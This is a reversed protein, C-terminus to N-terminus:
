GENRWVFRRLRVTGDFSATVMGGLSCAVGHLTSRERVHSLCSIVNSHGTTHESQLKGSSIDWEKVKGDIGATLVSRENLDLGRCLLVPGSYEMGKQKERHYMQAIPARLTQTLYHQRGSSASVKEGIQGSLKRFDWTAVSGDGGASVMLHGTPSEIFLDSVPSRHFQLVFLPSSGARADWLAISRDSSASVFTSRGWYRCKTIWGNQGLMTQFCKGGSSALDWLKLSRDAGGSLLRDGHWATEICLIKGGHSALVDQPELGTIKKRNPSSSPIDRSAFIIRSSTGRTSGAGVSNRGNGASTRLSWLKILGDKGGSVISDPRYIHSPVDLCTVGGRHGGLAKGRLIDAPKKGGLIDDNPEFSASDLNGDDPKSRALHVALIDQTDWVRLDGNTTGAIIRCGSTKQLLREGDSMSSWDVGSDCYDDQFHVGNLAALCSVAGVGSYGDDFGGAPVVHKGGWNLLMGKVKSIKSHPTGFTDATENVYKSTHAVFISGDLAGTAFISNGFSVLKTVPAKRRGDESKVTKNDEANVKMSENITSASSVPHFWTLEELKANEKLFKESISDSQSVGVENDDSTDNPQVGSLLNLDKEADAVDDCKLVLRRALMLLKQEREISLFKEQSIRSAFKALDDSPMGYGLMEYLTSVAAEYDDSEESDTVNRGETTTSQVSTSGKDRQRDKKHILLVTEWLSLGTFISHMCVQKTMYIVESYQHPNDEAPLILTCFGTTHTLLRYAAEYDQADMCADLMANCLRILCDFVIPLLPAVSVDNTHRSRASHDAVNQRRKGQNQMQSRQNLVSVLFRQASPNRMSSEAAPYYDPEPDLGLDSPKGDNALAHKRTSEEYAHELCCKVNERDAISLQKDVSGDDFSRGIEYKSMDNYSLDFSTDGSASKIFTTLDLANPSGNSDTGFPSSGAKFVDDPNYSKKEEELKWGRFKRDGIAEKLQIKPWLSFTPYNQNVDFEFIKCYNWPRKDFDVPQHMSVHPVGGSANSEGSASEPIERDIPDDAPNVPQLIDNTFSTLYGGDDGEYCLIDDDDDLADMVKEDDDRDDDGRRQVHYTPMKGEINELTGILKKAADDQQPSGFVSCGNFFDADHDDHAEFTDMVEHFFAFEESDLQELLHHFHQTNVLGSLFRKSRPSMIRQPISTRTNSVSPGGGGTQLGGKRVEFLAPAQRLFRDRNFVPQSASVFFLCDQYGRVLGCIQQAVAIRFEREALSEGELRPLHREDSFHSAGFQEDFEEEVRLLRFVAKSINSSVLAPLPDPTKTARGSRRGDFYDPSSFGNDLDIVVVDTLLAKDISKFNFSPVGFFYALPAEIYGSMSLPLVPVYPLQWQFPYILATVVEAVMALNAVDASHILIKSETLVAAFLATLGEAGLLRCVSTVSAGHPLAPLGTNPPISILLRDGEGSLFPFSCNILGATPSSFNVILDMLDSRIKSTATELNSSHNRSALRECLRLLLAELVGIIPLSSTLCIALPTWLRKSNSASTSTLAGKKETSTVSVGEENTSGNAGQAYDDQTPDIGTPAPVYFRIVAGFTKVNKSGYSDSNSSTVWWIFSTTCNLCADFAAISSAMSPPSSASFRKLHMDMHTPAEAGRWLRYGEPFCWLEINGTFNCTRGHKAHFADNPPFQELVSSVPESEVWGKSGDDNKQDGIDKAGVVCIFDVIGPELFPGNKRILEKEELMIRQQQQVPTERRVNSSLPPNNLVQQQERMESLNDQDTATNLGANNASNFNKPRATGTDALVHAEREKEDLDRARCFSIELLVSPSRRSANLNQQEQQQNTSSNPDNDMGNTSSNAASYSSTPRATSNNTPNLPTETDLQFWKEVTPCEDQLPLDSLPIILNGLRLDGKANSCLSAAPITTAPTMLSSNTMANRNNARKYTDSNDDSYIDDLISNLESGSQFGTAGDNNSNNSHHFSATTSTINTPLDFTTNTANTATDQDKDMLFRAVEAAARAAEM